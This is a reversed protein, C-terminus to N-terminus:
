PTWVELTLAPSGDTLTGGAVLMTGGGTRLATGGRRPTRRPADVFTGMPDAAWVARTAGDADRGVALVGGAQVMTVIPARLELTTDATPKPACAVTCTVDLVRPHAAAGDLASVGGLLLLHETDLPAV